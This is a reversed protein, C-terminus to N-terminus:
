SPGDFAVGNKMTNKQFCVLQFVVGITLVFCVTAATAEAESIWGVALIVAAVSLVLVFRSIFPFGWNESFSRKAQQQVQKYHFRFKKLILMM